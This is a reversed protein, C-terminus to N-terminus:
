SAVSGSRAAAAPLELWFVCGHPEASELGVRGDMAEILHKVISLGLGTGGMDRSRGPDVRYFREFIRARHQPAIGPGDDAVEIRARQGVRRARICVRGREPIYKIANDLLNVLVHDLAKSDARVICDSAIDYEIGIHRAEANREVSEFAIRAADAVAVEQREVQFQGAELRALDLLDSVIRTLREANRHVADLLRQGHIPDDKAGDILTEANARIISVPTRLEHSVNAVFDRRITELRRVETVDHLVVICGSGERQPTVRALVRKLPKKSTGIRPLELEVTAARVPPQLLNQIAPARLLEIFPAGEPQQELGLLELAAANMLRVRREDDLAIVAENMGELVAKFRAREEALASVTQEIDDAMRNLSGVLGGLEDTGPVDLRKQAAGGAIERANDSLRRLARSFFHSALGSMFIAVALGILGAALLGVRFRWITQDVDRLAVAARVVGARDSHHYPVAAYMLDDKITTSYRASIGSGDTLAQRVEPRMAHNDIGALQPLSLSSDGLVEGDPGIVTIRVGTADAMRATLAQVRALSFDAGAAELLVRTASAHRLLEDEIRHELSHKLKQQLFVGSALGVSLILAVSAGFLKARIGLKM